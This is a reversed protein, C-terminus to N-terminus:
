RKPGVFSDLVAVSDRHAISINRHNSMTWRIGLLDCHECFIQRIDASLNSFFYRVYEYEGVRGSPLDIKFQNICRCGDSHILGRLLRDPHQRTLQVQWDSLHIERKHKRGPGHQPFANPWVPHSACVATCGARSTRCVSIGPVTTELAAAAEDIVEPYRADLTLVLRPHGRPETICGDGLYLGLLYCYEAPASPRWESLEALPVPVRVSRPPSSRRRWNLVTARPIGTRRSVEYDSLGRALLRKVQWYDDPGRRVMVFM